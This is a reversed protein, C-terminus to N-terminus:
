LLDSLDDKNQYANYGSSEFSTLDDEIIDSDDIDIVPQSPSPSSPRSVPQSTKRAEDLIEFDDLELDKEDISDLFDEYTMNVNVARVDQVQHAVPKGVMRDLVEKMSELDGDMASEVLRELLVQAKTKGGNLARDDDDVPEYESAMIVGLTNGIQHKSMSYMEVPVPSGDVWKIVTKREMMSPDITTLEDRKRKM